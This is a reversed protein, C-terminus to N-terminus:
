YLTRWLSARRPACYYLTHAIAYPTHMLIPDEVPESAQTCLLLPHTCYCLAYANTYPGGCAREGPHVVTHPGGCAREGPHVITSPTHLLMPHICQCLTRWLSARRPACYYLTHAIAYPTHMPIPDEVPESAQMPM